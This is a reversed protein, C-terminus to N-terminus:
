QIILVTELVSGFYLGMGAVRLFILETGALVWRVMLGDRRGTGM